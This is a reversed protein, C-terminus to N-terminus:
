HGSCTPHMHPLTVRVADPTLVSKNQPPLQPVPVRSVQSDGTGASGTPKPPSSCWREPEQGAHSNCASWQGRCWRSGSSGALM